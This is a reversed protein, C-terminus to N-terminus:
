IAKLDIQDTIHCELGISNQNFLCKEVLMKLVISREMKTLVEESESILLCRIIRLLGVLTDDVKQVRKEASNYNNLLELGLKTLNKSDFVEQFLFPQNKKVDYYNEM